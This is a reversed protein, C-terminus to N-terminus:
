ILEFFFLGKNKLNKIVNVNKPPIQLNKKNKNIIKKKSKLCKSKKLNLSLIKLLGPTAPGTRYVPEHNISYNM